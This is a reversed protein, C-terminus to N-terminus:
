FFFLFFCKEELKETSSFAMGYTCITLAKELNEIAIHLFLQISNRKSTSPNNKVVKKRFTFHTVRERQNTVQSGPHIISSNTKTKNKNTKKQCISFSSMCLCIIHLLKLEVDLNTKFLVCVCSIVCKYLSNIEMAKVQLHTSLANADKKVTEMWNCTNIDPILKM